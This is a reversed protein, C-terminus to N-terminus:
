IPQAPIPALLEWVWVPFRRGVTGTDAFKSQTLLRGIRHNGDRENEQGLLHFNCALTRRRDRPHGLDRSTNGTLKQQYQGRIPSRVM